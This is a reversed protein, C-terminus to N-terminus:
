AEGRVIAELLENTIEGEDVGFADAIITELEADTLLEASERPWRRRYDELYSLKTAARGIRSKLSV